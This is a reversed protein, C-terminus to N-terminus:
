QRRELIEKALLLDEPTTIKMNEYSGEILKVPVSGFTEMVMADDTVGQCSSEQQMMRDYAERILPYAFSQPTQVSWLRKRPLTQDVYGNEDSVKITDKVPVAAVSAQCVPLADAIREIMAEDIFPRAGDHILVYDCPDAAKLGEYVSHYRERGGAVIAAVKTFGYREVIEQHCKEIEEQSCVLIIEDIRSSNQFTQLAYYLVPKEGLLMYQKRISSKMRSGRGGALVIATTKM